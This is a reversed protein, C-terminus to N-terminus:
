AAMPCAQQISTRLKDLDLPKALYGALQLRSSQQAVGEHGSFAVVPVCAIRRDGLQLARFRWGSTVLMSLDLLVVCPRPDRRLRRLAERGDGAEVVAYGDLRLLEAVGARTDADDEVLLILHQHRPPV